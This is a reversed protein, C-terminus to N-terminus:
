YIENVINKIILLINSNKSRSYEMIFPVLFMNYSPAEQITSNQPLPETVVIPIFRLNTKCQLMNPIQNIDQALTQKSDNVRKDYMNPMIIIKQINFNNNIYINDMRDFFGTLGETDVNKTAIPVILKNVVKLVATTVIGFSPPCDVVIYDYREKLGNLFDVIINVKDQKKLEDSELIDLLDENSPIFDIKIKIKNYHSEGMKNKDPNDVYKDAEIKLPVLPKKHFINTINSINDGKFGGKIRYGFFSGTQTAQPDLDILIVNHGQEALEYSIFNATTSKGVGGKQVGIGIIEGNKM